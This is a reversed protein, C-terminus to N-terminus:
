TTLSHGEGSALGARAMGLGKGGSVVAHVMALFFLSQPDIKGDGAELVLL